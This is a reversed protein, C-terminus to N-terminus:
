PSTAPCHLLDGLLKTYPTLIDVLEGTVAGLDTEKLPISVPVEMQIPLQQRVPVTLGLQIPLDM